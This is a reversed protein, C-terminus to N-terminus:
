SCSCCSTAAFNCALALSLCCCYCCLSMNRLCMFLRNRKLRWIRSSFFASTFSNVRATCAPTTVANTSACMAYGPLTWIYLNYRFQQWVRALNRTNDERKVWSVRPMLRREAQCGSSYAAGADLPLIQQLMAKMRMSNMM